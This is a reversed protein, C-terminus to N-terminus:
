ESNCHDRAEDFVEFLNGDTVRVEVHRQVVDDSLECVVRDPLSDTGLGVEGVLSLLIFTRLLRAKFRPLLFPREYNLRFQSVLSSARGYIV